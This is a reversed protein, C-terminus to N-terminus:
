KTARVNMAKSATEPEKNKYVTAYDCSCPEALAHTLAVRPFDGVQQHHIHTPHPHQITSVKQVRGCFASHHEAVGGFLTGGKKDHYLKASPIIFCNLRECHSVLGRSLHCRM